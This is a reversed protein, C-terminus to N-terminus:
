NESLKKKLRGNHFLEKLSRFLHLLSMGVSGYSYAITGETWIFEQKRESAVLAKVITKMTRGFTLKAVLPIPDDVGNDVMFDHFLRAQQRTPRTILMSVSKYGCNRLLVEPDYILNEFKAYEEAFQKL